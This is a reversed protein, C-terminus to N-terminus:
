LIAHEIEPSFYSREFPATLTNDKDFVIYRIGQGHLKKFDIRAVNHTRVHPIFARRNTMLTSWFM